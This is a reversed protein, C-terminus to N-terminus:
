KRRTLGPDDIDVSTRARRTSTEPTLAFSATPPNPSLHPVPTTRAAPAPPPPSAPSALTLSRTPRRSVPELAATPAPSTALSRAAPQKPAVGAERVSQASASAPEHSAERAHIPQPKTSSAGVGSRVSAGAQAVRAQEAGRSVRGTTGYVVIGAAALVAVAAAGSKALHSSTAAPPPRNRSTPPATAATSGTPVQSNTVVPALSAGEGASGRRSTLELVCAANREHWEAAACLATWFSGANPFRERPELALARALVQEVAPPLAVGRAGPTPRIEGLCAAMLQGPERGAFPACGTMLEAAVLALAHVDTWTGTAGLTELWQEPAAYLPTFSATATPTATSSVRESSDFADDVLKAIGFDLIKVSQEGDRASIFLNGPKIDRHAIGKSHARALGEAPARLLSLTDSLSLPSVGLARRSKLEHDMSVGELWELALYPALSSDRGRITGTEFARVISPHLHSLEFLMRGERQFSALRAERRASSWEEPLKLVKLAIPSEFGLHQARYVVGFGGQGVVREVRYRGDVVTECIGFPDGSRM